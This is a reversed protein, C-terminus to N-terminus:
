NKHRKNQFFNKLMESCQQELIGGKVNPRHHCTPQEYFKIGNTVAGGKEDFAGFYLNKIRAFSIAAACMTCPELTVYMDMDWLRNQKLKKCAQRIAIIEAHSTADETHQSLNHAQAIITNTIPDVILCGVPIEDQSAAQNALAIAQKMFDEHSM